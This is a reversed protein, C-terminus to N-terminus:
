VSSNLRRPEASFCPVPSHREGSSFNGKRGTESMWLCQTSWFTWGTKLLLSFCKENEGLIKYFLRNALCVFKKQGFGTASSGQFHGLKHKLRAERTTWVTLSRDEISSVWTQDRLQSSGGPSPFPVGSWDEQSSFGMSLPAQHSVTWPTAFLWVPSFSPACGCM